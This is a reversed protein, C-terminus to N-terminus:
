ANTIAIAFERKSFDLNFANGGVVLDQKGKASYHTGLIKQSGDRIKKPVCIRTHNKLHTTQKVGLSFVEQLLQM